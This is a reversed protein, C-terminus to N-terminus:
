NNQQNIKYKYDEQGAGFTQDVPVKQEACPSGESNASEDERYEKSSLKTTLNVCCLKSILHNKHTVPSVSSSKAVLSALLKSFRIM